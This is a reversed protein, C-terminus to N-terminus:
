TKKPPIHLSPSHHAYYPFRLTPIRTFILVLGSCKLPSRRTIIIVVYTTHSFIIYEWTHPMCSFM